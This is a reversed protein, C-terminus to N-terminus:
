ADSKGSTVPVWWVCGSAHDVAMVQGIVNSPKGSLFAKAEFTTAKRAPADGEAVQHAILDGNILPSKPDDLVIGLM